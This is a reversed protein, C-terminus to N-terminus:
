NTNKETYVVLLPMWSLVFSCVLFLAPDDVVRYFVGEAIEGVSGSANMVSLFLAYTIGDRSRRGARIVIPLVYLIGAAGGILGRTIEIAFAPAGLYMALMLLTSIMNLGVSIRLPTAFGKKYQYLFAVISSVLTSFVAAISLEIASLKTSVFPFMITGIEPVFGFFVVIVILDSLELVSKLSTCLEHAPTESKQVQWIFLSSLFPGIAAIQLVIDLEFWTFAVGSLGVGFMTGLTRAIWVENQLQGGDLKSIDVVLCDTSVDSICIFLSTSIMKFTLPLPFVLVCAALFMAISSALRKGIRDALVAWVPKLAWPASIASYAFAIDPASMGQSVMTKQVAIGSFAFTFGYVFYPLLMSISHYVYINNHDLMSLM